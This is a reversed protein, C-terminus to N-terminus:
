RRGRTPDDLASAGAAVIGVYQRGDKGQYTMPVAHASMDLLATWLEKGTRSDFHASGTTTAPPSSCSDAQQSSPGGMNMRGTAQKNPPLQETIGLPVKWAFDGTNANVAILHGMAPPGRLSAAWRRPDRGNWQFKSTSGDAITERSYPVKAGAPTEEVWGTTPM